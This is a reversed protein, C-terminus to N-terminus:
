GGLMVNNGYKRREAVPMSEVAYNQWQEGCNLCRYTTLEWFKGRVCRVQKDVVEYFSSDCNNVCRKTVSSCGGIFRVLIVAFVGSVILYVIAIIVYKM